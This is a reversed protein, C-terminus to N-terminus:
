WSFGKQAIVIETVDTRMNLIAEELKALTAILEPTPGGRERQGVLFLSGGGSALVIRNTASSYLYHMGGGSHDIGVERCEDVNTVKGELYYWSCEPDFIPDFARTSPSLTFRWQRKVMTRRARILEEKARELEKVSAELDEIKTEITRIDEPTM